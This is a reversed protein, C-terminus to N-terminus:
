IYHLSTTFTIFSILSLFAVPSSLTAPSTNFQHPFITESYHHLKDVIYLFSSFQELIESFNGYSDKLLWFSCLAASMM